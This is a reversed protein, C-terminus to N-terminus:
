RIMRGIEQFSIAMQMHLHEKATDRIILGSDKTNKKLQIISRGMDMRRIMKGNGKMLSVMLM